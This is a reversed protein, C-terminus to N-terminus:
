EEKETLKLIKDETRIRHFHFGDLEAIVIECLYLVRCGPELHGAYAYEADGVTMHLHPVSNAIVGDISTVELPKDEWKVFYDVPPLSTTVVMHMVCYDLTGIASIVVANNINKEKIFNEINELLYEGRDIRLVHIKGLKDGSFIEM